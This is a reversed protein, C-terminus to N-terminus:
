CLGIFNLKAYPKAEAFLDAYSEKVFLHDTMQDFLGRVKGCSLAPNQFSHILDV